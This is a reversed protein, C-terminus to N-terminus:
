VPLDIPKKGNRGGEGTSETPRHFVIGQNGSGHEMGGSPLSESRKERVGSLNKRYQLLFFALLLLGSISFTDHQYSIVKKVLGIQTQNEVEM